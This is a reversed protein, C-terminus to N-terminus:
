KYRQRLLRQEARQEEIKNVQKKPTTTVARHQRMIAQEARQEAIMDVQKKPAAAPAPAEDVTQQAAPTEVSAPAAGNVAQEFSIVSGVNSAMVQYGDGTAQLQFVAAVDTFQLRVQVQACNDDVCTAIVYVRGKSQVEEGDKKLVASLNTQQGDATVNLAASAVHLTHEANDILICADLTLARNAVSFSIGKIRTKASADERDLLLGNEYILSTRDVVKLDASEQQGLESLIQSRASEDTFDRLLSETAVRAEPVESQVTQSPTTPQDGAPVPVEAQDVDLTDAPEHVQNEMVSIDGSNQGVGFFARQEPTSRFSRFGNTGRGDGCASLWGVCAGGVLITRIVYLPKKM